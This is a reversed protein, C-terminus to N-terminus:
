EGADEDKQPPATDGTNGTDDEAHGEEAHGEEQEAEPDVREPEALKMEDNSEPPCDEEQETAEEEKGDKATPEAKAEILKPQAIVVLKEKGDEKEIDLLAVGGHQLDGFLMMDALPHKVKKHIVRSMERAGFKPSYGRKCLYEKAAETAEISVNRDEIQENLQTLFKDVIMRVVELPLPAFQIISDLRNRFEPSFTRELAATVKHSAEPQGFGVARKAADRAGANTTMILIVNRFDAKKGTNDTLTANDMVQLLLNFIDGHAKEIEDLLLVSHPNRNITDTLLGGQEFGVYGPPAGILRSATHREQYESMDMRQFSVGMVTALQKALETKGVGTPGSFLFCGVPKNPDKLGARSLKIASAVTKVADDQGFVLKRLDEYLDGLEQRDETSVTKAPIKAMRAVTAEVQEIDVVEIESLKAAAGSEDIVDIAKDPLKSERLHEAALRAASDLADEEYKVGHFEEYRPALGKLIDICDEISPEDLDIIQFRRGLARDKGFSQKYEEHTSAGICRLEGAQLAPKLLNSADMTGNTTAGAGVLMHIEDIFLIANDKEQMENIVEKLREEFDGRYRTGALLSGMDLSYVESDMLMKPVDGEHIKRALGEVIATKGVGPDGLLIPNNKRRRALIHILRQVEKERGILPDIKGTSARSVLETAYKELAEGEGEFSEEDNDVVSRRKREAKRTKKSGHSYFTTLDVRDIGQQRLLYVAYSDEQRMLEILVNSGTITDKGSNLVHTAARQFVAAFATTQQPERDVNEPLKDVEQELYLELDRELDRLKGGCGKLLDSSDPDHLLALLVHELTLYEHRREQADEMARSLAIRLEDAIKM